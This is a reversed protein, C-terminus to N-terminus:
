LLGPGGGRTVYNRFQGYMHTPLNTTKTLGENTRASGNRLLPASSSVSKEHIILSDQKHFSYKLETRNDTQGHTV